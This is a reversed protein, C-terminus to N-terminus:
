VQKSKKCTKKLYKKKQNIKVWPFPFCIDHMHQKIIWIVVNNPPPPCCPTFKSPCQQGLLTKTKPYFLKANISSMSFPSCFNPRPKNMKVLSSLYLFQWSVQPWNKLLQTKSLDAKGETETGKLIQESCRPWIKASM